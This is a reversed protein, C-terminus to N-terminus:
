TFVLHVGFLSCFVLWPRNGAGVEHVTQEMHSIDFCIIRSNLQVNTLGNFCALTGILMPEMLLALHEAVEEPQKKIEDYLDQLTPEGREDNAPVNEEVFTDTSSISSEIRKLDDDSVKGQQIVEYPKAIDGPYTEVIIGNSQVLLRDGVEYDVPNGYADSRPLHCLKGADIIYDNWDLYCYTEGGHKKAVVAYMPVSRNLSLVKGDQVFAEVYKSIGDQSLKWIRQGGTSFPEGWAQLLTNEDLDKSLEIMQDFTYSSVEEVSPFENTKSNTDNETEKESSTEADADTVQKVCSTCVCMSVAAMISLVFVYKMKKGM